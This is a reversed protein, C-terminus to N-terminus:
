VILRESATQERGADAKEIQEQIIEKIRSPKGFGGAIIKSPSLDILRVYFDRAAQIDREALLRVEKQGEKALVEYQRKRFEQKAMQSM